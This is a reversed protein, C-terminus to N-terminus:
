ENSSKFVSLFRYSSFAASFAVDGRWEERAKVEKSTQHRAREIEGDSIERTCRRRGERSVFKADRDEREEQRRADKKMELSSAVSKLANWYCTTHLERSFTIVKM